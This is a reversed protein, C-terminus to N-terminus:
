EERELTMLFSVLNAIEDETLDTAYNQPMTDAPFGEVVYMNPDVISLYIYNSTQVGIVRKFATTAIGHLSPGVLTVDPELSHCTVCGAGGALVRQEFLARGAVPDATEWGCLSGDAFPDLDRADVAM